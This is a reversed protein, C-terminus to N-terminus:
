AEQLHECNDLVLLVRRGQLNDVLVDLGSADAQYNSIRLAAILADCIRSSADAGGDAGLESLRVLATADYDEHSARLLESALRTKGVGASGVLTVLRTGGDLLDLVSGLLSSRGVLTTLESSVVTRRNGPTVSSTRRLVAQNCSGRVRRM